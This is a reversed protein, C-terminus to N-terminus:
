DAMAWTQGATVRLGDPFYGEAILSERREQASKVAEAWVGHELMDRIEPEISVELDSLEPRVFTRLVEPPASLALAPGYYHQWENSPRPLEQKKEATPEPDRWYFRLADGAFYAFSGIHLSCPRGGVTVLRLAQQKAKLKDTSSPASSRGKSEFALWNGRTDEAVLDPRSRGLTKPDLIPKFVDLHLLWPAQLRRHSFLKTLTMGLFYSVMGKETPDLSAFADSKMLRGSRTQVVAMRILSERFIAEYYSTLGHRFVHFTSPRGVTIAAWLLEDWSTTLTRSGNESSSPFAEGQWPIELSM